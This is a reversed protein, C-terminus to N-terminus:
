ALKVSKAGEVQVAVKSAGCAAERFPAVAPKSASLTWDQLTEQAAAVFDALSKKQGDLFQGKFSGPAMAIARFRIPSGKGGSQSFFFVTEFTFNGVYGANVTGATQVVLTGM